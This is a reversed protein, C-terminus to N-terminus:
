GKSRPADLFDNRPPSGSFLSVAVMRVLASAALIPTSNTRTCSTLSFRIAILARARRRYSLIHAHVSANQDAIVFHSGAVADVGFFLRIRLSEQDRSHQVEVERLGCFAVINVFGDTIGGNALQYFGKQTPFAFIQQLAERERECSLDHEREGRESARLDGNVLGVSGHFPHEAGDGHACLDPTGGSIEAHPRAYTVPVRIHVLRHAEKRLIPEHKGDPLAAADAGSGVAARRLVLEEIGCQLHDGQVVCIAQEAEDAADFVLAVSRAVQMPTVPGEVEVDEEEAVLRSPLPIEDERMGLHGFALEDEGGEGLECGVGDVGEGTM